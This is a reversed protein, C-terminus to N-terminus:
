RLPAKRLEPQSVSSQALRDLLLQLEAAEAMQGYAPARNARVAELFTRAQIRYPDEPGSAPRISSPGAPHGAREHSLFLQSPFASDISARIGGHPGEIEVWQSFGPTLFDAELIVAPGHPYELRVVWLDDADVPVMRGGIEREPQCLDRVLLHADQPPGFFWFALDLAHVFMENAVGGGEAHRHKWPQHSGRGGIRFLALHPPGLLAEDVLLRRVEAFLPVSRYLFGVMGIGEKERLREALRRAEGGSPALPKEVLFAKGADLAAEALPVHTPTPTTIVVARISDDRFVADVKLVSLGERDALSRARGPDIDAVVLEIGPETGRLGAIHRPAQKGAGLIAMKM